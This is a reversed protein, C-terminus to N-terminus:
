IVDGAVIHKALADKGQEDHPGARQASAGHQQYLRQWWYKM